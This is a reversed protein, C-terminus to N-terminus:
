VLISQENGKYCVDMVLVMILNTKKHNMISKPQGVQSCPREVTKRSSVEGYKSYWHDIDTDKLRPGAHNSNTSVQVLWEHSM